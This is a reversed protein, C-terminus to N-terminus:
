RIKSLRGLQELFCHSDYISLGEVCPTDGYEISIPVLEIGESVTTDEGQILVPPYPHLFSADTVEVGETRTTQGQAHLLPTTCLPLDGHPEILCRVHGVEVQHLVANLVKTPEILILKRM